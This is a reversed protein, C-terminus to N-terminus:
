NQPKRLDLQYSQIVRNSANESFKGTKQPDQIKHQSFLDTGISGCINVRQDSCETEKCQCAPSKGVKM